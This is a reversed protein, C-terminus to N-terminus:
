ASPREGLATKHFQFDLIRADANSRYLLRVQEFLELLQVAGESALLAAAAQSQRDATAQHFHHVPANLKPAGAHTAPGRHRERKRHPPFLFVSHVHLAFFGQHRSPILTPHSNEHDIVIRFEAM